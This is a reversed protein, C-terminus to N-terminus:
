DDDLPQVADPNYGRVAPPPASPLPASSVTPMTKAKGKRHKKQEVLRQQSRRASKTKAAATAELARQENIIAFIAKENELSVGREKGKRRAERLEWISVPPLGTDRYPIQVYRKTNEDFFYLQSIDRPDRRFRFKRKHKPYKPDQANIYPRLVDHYYHINDIM